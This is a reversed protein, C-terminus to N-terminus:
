GAKRSRKINPAARSELLRKAVFYKKPHRRSDRDRERYRELRRELAAFAGDFATRQTAETQEVRLAPRYPLRATLACRVALGGKPGNDDFFTAQATIPKLQLRELAAQVQKEVRARLAPDRRIGRIEIVMTM